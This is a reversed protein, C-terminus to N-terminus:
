HLSLTAKSRKETVCVLHLWLWQGLEYIMETAVIATSLTQIDNQYCCYSHLPIVSETSNTYWKPLLLLQQSSNSIRYLKYIMRTVVIATSLTQIDNQYCCYRYLPIVSETSNTYWKPLLLLQQFSNSIRYLKYIMRSVLIATSLTQIHNQYCCYSNVPIVSEISNTYWEPLLLLLQSSNNIRYLKYIM